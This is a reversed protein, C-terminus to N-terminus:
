RKLIGNIFRGVMGAQPQGADDSEEAANSEAIESKGENASVIEKFRVFFDAAFKTAASQILRSGVQALKGGIQAEAVYALRTGEPTDSLQITAVLKGFGAIGGNGQGEIGYGEGDVRDFIRAKGKFTASVPGISSVVVADYMDPETETYSKCGPICRQIVAPDNLHRWVADRSAPIDQQGEFKM